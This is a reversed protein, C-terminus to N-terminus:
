LERGKRSAAPLSTSSRRVHRVPIRRLVGPGRRGHALGSHPRRHLQERRVRRRRHALRRVPRPHRLGNAGVVQMQDNILLGRRRATCTAASAAATSPRRRSPTCGSPRCPTCSTTRAASAPMREVEGRGRHARGRRLAWTLRLSRWRTAASSCTPTSPTRCATTGTATISPCRTSRSSTPPSLSAATSRRRIGGPPGRLERRLHHLQSPGAADDPHHGPRGARLHRQRRGRGRPHGHLAPPQRLPRHDAVAPALAPDHRRLPLAGLQGGEAQWDVGGDFSARATSARVRRRGRGPGHPLVRRTEGGALYSPPAAWPRRPSTSTWCRRTTASAAPRSSSPAAQRPHLAERDFDEKAVLGVIRGDDDSCSRPPPARSSTTARGHRRDTARVHRRHRGEDEARPPRAHRKEAGRVRAGRRSALARRLRGDLRASKGGESAIRYILKPDAAYHYEDMAWDTLAQPDFPYSPFAFHKKNQGSYGGLIGCM